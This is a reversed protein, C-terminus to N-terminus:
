NKKKSSTAAPAAAPAANMQGLAQSLRRLSDMRAKRTAEDGAALQSILGSPFQEEGAVPIPASSKSSVSTKGYPAAASKFDQAKQNVTTKTDNVAVAAQSKASQAAASASSTSSTKKEDKGGFSFGMTLTSIVMLTLARQFM